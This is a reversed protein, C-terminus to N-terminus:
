RRPAFDGASAEDALRQLEDSSVIRVGPAPSAALEILARAVDRGHIGRYKRLPGILAPGIIKMAVTAVGEAARRQHREGLLLSPRASTVSEFGVQALADELQWKVRNYFIKSEASVGLASVSLCHQVGAAVAAKAVALPIELDVKRFQAQSGAVKITTGMCNFLVDARLHADWSTPEDFSVKVMTAGQPGQVDRRCLATVHEYREDAALLAVLHEGVLGTAGIVLARMRKELCFVVITAVSSQAVALTAIFGRDARRHCRM